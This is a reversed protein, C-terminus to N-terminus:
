NLAKKLMKNKRKKEKGAKMFAGLGKFFHGNFMAILGDLQKWSIAGGTMRSLGRMPQYYVGMFIVNALTRKGIAKLFKYAFKISGAFLRGVWRRSYRLQAITTNYGVVIRNKKYFDLSSKPIERNLLCEFESNSVNAAKGSYYSPLKEKDYPCPANTGELETEGLLKIDASSAGILVKYEGGEIEWKNTLVNFYRFTKDDFPIFVEKQEGAQLFVKKFGKLEKKPRFIESKQKSIYLQAVEAGERDGTNKIFFRAGDASVVIESYEFNTYSLGYGFPFRVSVDATDYYRYGIFLGERYQVNVENGPFHAAASCDEYMFPYSEALKGSPNVKGVITNLIARAGAQGSLYAHLIGDADREFDMEIASGCALVVIIKKGLKKLAGLLRVQNEPLKMNSRDLGESETVEDLGLYLLVTDAKSALKVAKKILKAKKKGYRDFGREYGLFEFDYDKVFSLTNDLKTPNVVSSGSGQYRAKDAFDGIIAVRENKALPLANNENKLLVISQEAARQALNHHAEVDFDKHETNYVENTAFILSLLRDVCEDLVSIDIRGSKVAEVIEANTEGGTTPMELENGAKLGEVRDNDGGWDTVVVGDFGWEKRLIDQLLHTNENAFTGNVMNYSSMISHTGGEKVAIEFATLYIERLSREDVIADIIMRNLEQNNVAFHKVCASIGNSQIGRIYAAAMKGALYPDESFYEFNRGCMPNRKMNTGPGLLVNVKQTVAEEGLARAMEEGLSDDFSNAMTAATPFSTAPFSANLGLHDAAAAQKRIGHPGDALFMKPIDYSPLDMSQWFDKGSMLSAKEELTMRDILEKYKM